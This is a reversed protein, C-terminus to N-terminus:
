KAPTTECGSAACCITPLSDAPMSEVDELVNYVEWRNGDPDTV